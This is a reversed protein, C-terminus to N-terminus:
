RAGARPAPTRMSATWSDEFVQKLPPIANCMRFWTKGIERFLRNASITQRTYGLAANVAGFGHERMEAEYAQIAPLLPTQGRQVAVLAQALQSADRLAMNGGLGGVPPMNHIADGLLTINTSQWPAIPLSTKFPNLSVSAPDSEDILQRLVPHWGAAMEGVLQQLARGDLSHADAPYADAHAIFAWLMYDQTKDLLLELDLDAADARAGIRALADASTAARHFPANFMTFRSPPFILNMRAAFQRPLWVRTHDSLPLKGGVGVAGTEVRQAHPLYQKRVKSNAGDAAVLVDGTASGGDMFFATVKGDPTQEYREFTTDFHVVDQLGAVLLHRLAVRNIPHHGYASAPAQNSMFAEAIVVLDELQETLFGLGLPPMGAAAIFADWITSPLCEHLAKSGVPNIHIRYGEPWVNAPNREYVAVGVGAAKLGQALCLGGLGGGIIVVHLPTSGM